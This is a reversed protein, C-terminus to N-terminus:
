LHCRQIIASVRGWLKQYAVATLAVASFANVRHGEGIIAELTSPGDFDDQYTRNRNGVGASEMGLQIYDCFVDM